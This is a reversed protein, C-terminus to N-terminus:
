KEFLSVGNKAVQIHSSAHSNVLDLNVDDEFSFKLERRCFGDIELLMQSPSLSARAGGKDPEQEPNIYM